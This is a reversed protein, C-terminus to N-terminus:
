VMSLIMLIAFTQLCGPEKCHYNDRRRASISAENILIDSSHGIYASKQAAKELPTEFGDVVKLLKWHMNWISNGTM